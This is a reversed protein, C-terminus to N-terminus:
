VVANWKGIPCSASALQTKTKMFCGCKQCRSSDEVFFECKQCESFRQFGTEADVLIPLGKAATKGARWAEKALNRAMQFPTPFKSIDENKVYEETKLIANKTQNDFKADYYNIKEQSMKVATEVDHELDLLIQHKERLFLPVQNKPEFYYLVDDQIKPFPMKDEEICLVFFDIRNKNTELRKELETQLSTKEGNCKNSVILLLVINNANNIKESIDPIINPTTTNLSIDNKNSMPEQATNKIQVLLDHYKKPTYYPDNNIIKFEPVNIKTMHPSKEKEESTRTAHFPCMNTKDVRAYKGQFYDKQWSDGKNTGNKKSESFAVRAINWEWYKEEFEPNESLNHIEAQVNEFISIDVPFIQCVVDGPNFDVRGPQTFIWNMTFTFPAWHTEVIGSLPVANAKPFNTPGTVYMAYPYETKFLYGTHWTFTGEGFHNDPFITGEHKIIKVSKPSPDGDWELSFKSPNIFEWGYSNAISLPLCRYANKSVSNDMWQRKSTAPRMELSTGVKYGIIKNM